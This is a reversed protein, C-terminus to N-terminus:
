IFDFNNSSFFSLLKKLYGIFFVHKKLFNTLILSANLRQEVILLFAIISKETHLNNLLLFSPLSLNKLLNPFDISM